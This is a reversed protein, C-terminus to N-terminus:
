WQIASGKLGTTASSKATGQSTLEAAIGINTPIPVLSGPGFWVGKWIMTVSTVMTAPGSAIGHDVDRAVVWRAVIDTLGSGEFALAREVNRITLSEVHIHDGTLELGNCCEPSNGVDPLWAQCTKHCGAGDIIVQNAAQGRIVIPNEATGSATMTFPGNYTGPALLIVDGPQANALASSFTSASTVPVVWPAAPEHRPLARTRGTITWTLNINGDPDTANLELEYTSGPLLDFLSGNFQPPLVFSWAALPQARFLDMASRWTGGPSRYRVAIRANRNDDGAILVQLGLTHITPRDLKTQLVQLVDDASTQLGVSGGLLAKSGSLTSGGNAIRGSIASPFDRHM